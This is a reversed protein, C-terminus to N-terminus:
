FPKLFFKQNCDLLKQEWVHNTQNFLWFQSWKSSSQLRFWHNNWQKLNACIQRISGTIDWLGTGAAITPFFLFYYYLHKRIFCIILEYIAKAWSKIWNRAIISRQTTILCKSPSSQLQVCPSTTITLHITSIVHM